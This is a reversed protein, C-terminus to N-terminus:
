ILKQTTEFNPKEFIWIEEIYSSIKVSEVLQNITPYTDECIILDPSSNANFNRVDMYLPDFNIRGRIYEVYDNFEEQNDFSEKNRIFFNINTM